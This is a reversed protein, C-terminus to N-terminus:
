DLQGHRRWAALWDAASAPREADQAFTSVAAPPQEAVGIQNSSRMRDVAGLHCDFRDQNPVSRGSEARITTLLTKRGTSLHAPRAGSVATVPSNKAFTSAMVDNM